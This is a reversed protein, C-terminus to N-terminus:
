ELKTKIAPPLKSLALGYFHNYKDLALKAIRDIEPQKFKYVRPWIFAILTVLYILTTGSFWKGIQAIVWFLVLFGVSKLPRNFFFVSRLTCIIFNLLLEIFDSLPQLQEQSIHIDKGKFRHELPNVPARKSIIARFLETNVWIGCLGVFACLMLSTLTLVSYDAFTILLFFFNFIGFVFASEFIDNWELIGWVRKVLKNARLEVLPNCSDSAKSSEGEESIDGDDTLPQKLKGVSEQSVENEESSVDPVIQEIESM